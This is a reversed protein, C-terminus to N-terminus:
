TAPAPEPAPEPEQIVVLIPTPAPEPPNLWGRAVMAERNAPNQVYDMYRAPDNHFEDRTQATLSEFAERGKAVMEMMEQFNNHPNDDFSMAMINSAAAIKDIGHRAVIHNIDVSGKHNQETLLIETEDAIAKQSDIVAGAHRIQIGKPTFKAFSM